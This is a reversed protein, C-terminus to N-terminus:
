VIFYLLSGEFRVMLRSRSLILRRGFGVYTHCLIKSWSLVMDILFYPVIQHIGDGNTSKCRGEMVEGCGWGWGWGMGGLVMM